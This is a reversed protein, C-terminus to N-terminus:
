IIDLLVTDLYRFDKLAVYGDRNELYDHNLKDKFYQYASDVEAIGKVLHLKMMLREFYYDERKLYIVESFRKGNLYDEMEWTNVTRVQGLHSGAGLGLGMHNEFNYYILTQASEFGPKSFSSIEYQSYGHELINQVLNGYDNGEYYISIHAPNLALVEDLDNGLVELSINDFGAEKLKLYGEEFNSDVSRLCIRNVGYKKLIELKDEVLNSVDLEISFHHKVKIEKLLNELQYSELKLVDGGGIYVNTYPGFLDDILHDIYKDDIYDYVPGGYIFDYFPIQIYLARNMM